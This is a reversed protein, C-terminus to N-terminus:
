RHDGGRNTITQVLALYEKPTAEPLYASGIAMGITALQAPDAYAMYITEYRPNFKSKFRFLSTFGYAPELMEGLWGLLRDMVGPEAPVEGPKTALPAGSLSLVQVGQEKMHLAASAIIFEMIGPMSGDSRRMFDITWGTVRGDTWTPLWSTTAEIGGDKNIALFIGVDSDKLEEMGGLTFGMEPLKKHAVWEESVATIERSYRTPLDHWTSWLTTIGEREGRNLPQRVKQWAKGTLEFGALDIVTEEGVSMHQWGFSQFVPLFREHFSYFCASWGQSECYAIFAEVTEQERGEACVPDSMTLAVKRIVRYAVAGQGDPTFWYSNGAWTGMFGLTGGGGERLLARFRAEEIVHRDVQTARFLRVAALIFVIWFPVGVWQYVFLAAGDVPIGADAIAPLLGSSVFPRILDALLEGLSPQGDLYNDGDILGIVLYAGAFVVFAGVVTIAFRRVAARPALVRFHRRTFLLLAIVGIPVLVALIMAIGDEILLAGRIKDDLLDNIGVSTGTLLAIVANVMLAMIWAARRGTRLGWAAVLTLLLPVLSVLFPGPGSNLIADAQRVCDATFDEVCSKPMQEAEIPSFGSVVLGLPAYWAGSILVIFPGLGTAAVIAAVLTRVERHSSRHWTARVTGRALLLSLLLGLVGSLLRFVSDSDAAYLAFMVLLTFGVVRIRRQWLAPALASAAMLMGVTGITPDAVADYSALLGWQSGWSVLLGQASLGIVMALIGTLFFTWAARVSGLKREAYAGATLILAIALVGGIVSDGFLLATLPTWWDGDEITTSVSAAFEQPFRGLFTGTVFGAALVVVALMASFPNSSLYTLVARIWRPVPRPTPAPAVTGAPANDSPTM